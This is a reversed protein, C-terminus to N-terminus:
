GCLEAARKALRAVHKQADPGELTLLAALIASAPTIDGREAIVEAFSRALHLTDGRSLALKLFRFMIGTDPVMSGTEYRFQSARTVGIQEATALLNEDRALRLAKAADAFKEAIPDVKKNVAM